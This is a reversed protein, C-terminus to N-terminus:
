QPKRFPSPIPPAVGRNVQRPPPAIPPAGIPNAALPNAPPPALAPPAIPGTPVPLPPPTLAAPIIPVEIQSEIIPEPAADVITEDEWPLTDPLASSARPETAPVSVGATSSPIEAVKIVPAVPKMAKGIAAKCADKSWASTDEGVAIAAYKRLVTVRNEDMWNVPVEKIDEPETDSIDSSKLGLLKCVEEKKWGKMLLDRAAQVAQSPEEVMVEKIQSLLILVKGAYKSKTEAENLWTDLMDAGMRAVFTYKNDLVFATGAVGKTETTAIPIDEVVAVTKSNKSGKPRPM